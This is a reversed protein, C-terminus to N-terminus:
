HGRMRPETIEALGIAQLGNRNLAKRPFLCGGLAVQGLGDLQNTTLLDPCNKGLGMRIPRHQFRDPLLRTGHNSRHQEGVIDAM